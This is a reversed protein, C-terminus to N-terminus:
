KICVKQGNIIYIGRQLGEPNKGLYQGKLNYVGGSKSKDTIIRDLASTTEHDLIIRVADMEVTQSTNDSFNLTVLDSDFTLKTIEKAIPKGDILTKIETDASASQTAAALLLTLITKSHKM